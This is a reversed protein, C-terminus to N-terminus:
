GAKREILVNFSIAIREDDSFYPHVMHKLWSPFMVMLGPKPDVLYRGDFVQVDTRLMNVGIRPDVLELKGNAQDDNDKKGCAVYYVGSWTSM